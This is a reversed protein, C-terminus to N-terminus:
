QKNSRVYSNIKGHQKLSDLYDSTIGGSVWTCEPDLNDCGIFVREGNKSIQIHIIGEQHHLLEKEKILELIKKSAETTLPIIYFNLKPWSTQRPLIDTAECVINDFHNFNDVLEYGEFSIYSDESSYFDMIEKLANVKDKIDIMYM